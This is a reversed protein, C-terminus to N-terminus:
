TIIETHKLKKLVKKSFRKLSNIERKLDQRTNILEKLQRVSVKEPLANKLEPNKKELRSIKANFNKVAKSLDQSDSKQWKINHRRSM